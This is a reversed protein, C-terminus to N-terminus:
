VTYIFKYPGRITSIGYGSFQAFSNSKAILLAKIPNNVQEGGVTPCYSPLYDVYVSDLRSM